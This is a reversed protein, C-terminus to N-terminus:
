IMRTILKNIDKGRYGLAGKNVYARKIGEYGKKAVFPQTIVEKPPTLTQVLKIGRKGKLLIGEKM